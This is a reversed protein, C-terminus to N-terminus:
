FLILIGSERIEIANTGICQISPLEDLLTVSTTLNNRKRVTNCHKYNITAQQLDSITVFLGINLKSFEQKTSLRVFHTHKTSLRVFHTTRKM